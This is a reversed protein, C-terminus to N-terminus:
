LSPPICVYVSMQVRYEQHVSIDFRWVIYIYTSDLPHSEPYILVDLRDKCFRCSSAGVKDGRMIVYSSNKMPSMDIRPESRGLQTASISTGRMKCGCTSFHALVSEVLFRVLVVVTHGHM